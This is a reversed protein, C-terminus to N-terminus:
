RRVLVVAAPLAQAAIDAMKHEVAPPWPLAAPAFGFSQYFPALHAFPICWLPGPEDRAAFRALLATVMARAVGRGRAADTTWIGGLEVVDGPHRVLRGLGVRDGALEAVLSIADPPSSAFRLAQYQTQAWAREDDRLDRLTVSATV